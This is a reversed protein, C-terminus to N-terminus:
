RRAVLLYSRESQHEVDPIPARDLRGVPAFGAADLEAAEAEPDLFRFTLDVDHGWWEDRHREAGAASEADRIHFSILAPAGPRLVRAFERYAAARQDADLHIVAYLCVLGDLAGAALPLRTLDGSAAPVANTRSAVASMAPSLDVGIPRCGLGRLHAAVHGPGCGLDGVRGRGALEAFAALLARDLPRTALEGGIEAAYQEAVADYSRRTPESM